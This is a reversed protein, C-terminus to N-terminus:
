AAYFAVSAALLMQSGFYLPTGLLKNWPDTSVFQRRAVFLDSIAFGWAGTIILWTGPQGWSGGALVLMTGIVFIYAPVAFRMPGLLHKRLWFHTGILLTLAPVLSIALASAHQPLQLFALAYLVHGCLFAVLGSMFAANSEFMLFIDGAAALLLGVLLLQGYSSDMAGLLLALWIFALSALPKCVFRGPLIDHYDSAMLGTVSVLALLVPAIIFTTTNIEAM